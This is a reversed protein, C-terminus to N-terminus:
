QNIEKVNVYMETESMYSSNIDVTYKLYLNGGNDDIESRIEDAKVGVIFDGFPTGYHCHHKKGKEIVLNSLADGTRAMTVMSSGDIDLTVTSGEYGTAQSEEYIIKYKNKNKGRGRRLRGFTFLETVDREENAFQTSKIDICVNKEM